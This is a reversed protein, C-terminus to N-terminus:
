NIEVERGSRGDRDGRKNAISSKAGRLRYIETATTNWCAISVAYMYIDGGYRDFAKGM